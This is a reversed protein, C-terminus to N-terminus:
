SQSTQRYNRLLNKIRTMHEIMRRLAKKNIGRTEGNLNIICSLLVNLLTNKTKYFAVTIRAFSLFIIYLFPLTLFMLFSTILFDSEKFEILSLYVIIINIISFVFTICFDITAFIHYGKINLNSIFFLIWIVIITILYISKLTKFEVIDINTLSLVSTPQMFFIDILSFLLIGSVIIAIIENYYKKLIKM